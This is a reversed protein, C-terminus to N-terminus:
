QIQQSKGITHMFIGSTILARINSWWSNGGLDLSQMKKKGDGDGDHTINSICKKQFLLFQRFILDGIRVNSELVESPEQLYRLEFHSSNLALAPRRGEMSYLELAQKIVENATANSDLIVRLPGASGLVTILVLVKNLNGNRVKQNGFLQSFPSVLLTQQVAQQSSWPLRVARSGTPRGMGLESFQARRRGM